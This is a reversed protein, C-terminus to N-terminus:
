VKGCLVDNFDRGEIDSMSIRVSLGCAQWIRAAYIAAGRGTEDNDAAIHIRRATRPLVLSSLNPGLVAAGCKLGLLLMASLCTELGEAVVFEDDPNPTDLWVAGGDRHGYTIRGPKLERDRDSGDWKLHTCQVACLGYKVNWMRAALVPRTTRQLRHVMWGANRLASHSIFSELGRARLYKAAEYNPEDRIPPLRSWLVTAFERKGAYYEAYEEPTFQKVDRARPELLGAEVLHARQETYGDNIGCAECHWCRILLPFKRGYTVSLSHRTCIPCNCKWDKGSREGRGCYNAIAQATDASPEQQKGGGVLKYNVELM